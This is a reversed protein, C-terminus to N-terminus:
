ISYGGDVDIVQGTVYSAGPSVLFAVVEAIEVAKGLRRMPLAAETARMAEPALAGSDVLRRAMGDSLLGVGVANARLGYRGEEAAVSRILTEIAAKPAASLVDRPVNRRVAVSTVAVVSGATERLHPIAHSISAFCGVVESVLHSAFKASDITSCWMQDPLVGAAYVLSNLSGFKEVTDQVARGLSEPNNLDVEVVLSRSGLGEVDSAVRRASEASSRATISVDMGNAAIKRCIEAGIAGSGGVVLAAGNM